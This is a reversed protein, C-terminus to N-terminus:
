LATASDPCEECPEIAVASLPIHKRGSDGYVTVMDTHEAGFFGETDSSEIRIYGFWELGSILERVVGILTAEGM